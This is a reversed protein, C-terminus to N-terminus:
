PWSTIIDLVTGVVDLSLALNDDEELGGVPNASPPSRPRPPPATLPNRRPLRELEGGDCWVLYCTRCADLEPGDPILATVFPRRCAPCTRSHAMIRAQSWFRGVAKGDVGERLLAIGILCGACSRCVWVTGKGSNRPVLVSACSPCSYTTEKM